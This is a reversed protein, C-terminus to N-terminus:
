GLGEPPWDLDDTLDTVAPRLYAAQVREDAEVDGPEGRGVVAGGDLVYVFDALASVFPLDQDTLVVAVGLEDCVMGIREALDRREKLDLGAAPEDLIALKPDTAVARGIETLRRAGAPLVSVPEDALHEIGLLEAIEFAHHRAKRDEHRSLALRLGCAFFGGRMRNHGATMLNEIVTMSEFLEGGAFTRALGLAARRHAPLDTIDRDGFYVRGDDARVYGGIADCLATKGSGNPGVIAVIEGDNLEFDVNNCAVIGGFSVNMAQVRFLAGARKPHAGLFQSLHTEFDKRTPPTTTRTREVGDVSFPKWLLEGRAPGETVGPPLVPSCTESSTTGGIAQATKAPRNRAEHLRRIVDQLRGSGFVEEHPDGEPQRLPEGPM